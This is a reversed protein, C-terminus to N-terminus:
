KRLRGKLWGIRTKRAADFEPVYPKIDLLPTGDLVDIGKVFLVNNKQRLLQVVSIGIQSPRAPYRTSFLGRCRSDLFPKVLLKYRKSKHFRYILIIHSFGLIDRLGPAFKKYVEVRGIKKSKFPQIPTKGKVKFPSRIIGIPRIMVTKTVPM